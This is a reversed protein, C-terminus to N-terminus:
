DHQTPIFQYRITLYGPHDIDDDLYYTLLELKAVCGSATQIVILRGPIPQVYHDVMDYRYWGNGSGTPIAPHRNKDKKYGRAPAQLLQEFNIKKTLQASVAPHLRIHTKEFVLDWAGDASDVPACLRLSFYIPGQNVDINKYFKLTDAAHAPQIFMGACFIAIRLQDIGRM